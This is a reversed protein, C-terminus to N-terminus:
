TAPRPPHAVRPDAPGPNLCMQFPQSAPTAAALAANIELINDQPGAGSAIVIKRTINRDTLFNQGLKKKVAIETHKYEVNTM